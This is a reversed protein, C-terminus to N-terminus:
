DGVGLVGVPCTFVGGGRCLGVLGRAGWGLLCGWGAGATMM